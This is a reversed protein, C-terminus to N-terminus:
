RLDKTLVLLYNDFTVVHVYYVNPKYYLWLTGRLLVDTEASIKKLKSQNEVITEVTKDNEDQIDAIAVPVTEPSIQKMSSEANKPKRDKYFQSKINIELGLGKFLNCQTNHKHNHGTKSQVLFFTM